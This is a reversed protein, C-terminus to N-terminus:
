EQDGIKITVGPGAISLLPSEVREVLKEASGTLTAIM